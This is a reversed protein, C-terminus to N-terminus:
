FPNAVGEQFKQIINLGNHILISWFIKLCTVLLVTSLIQLRVTCLTEFHIKIYLGSWLWLSNCPSLPGGFPWIYGHIFIGQQPGCYFITGFYNQTLVAALKGAVLVAQETFLSHDKQSTFWKKNKPWTM